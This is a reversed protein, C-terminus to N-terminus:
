QTDALLTDGVHALVCTKHKHLCQQNLCSCGTRTGDHVNWVPRLQGGEWQRNLDGTPQAVANRASWPVLTWRQRTPSHCRESASRPLRCCQHRSCLIAAVPVLPAPPASIGHLSPLHEPVMTTCTAPHVLPEPVPLRPCWLYRTRRHHLLRAWPAQQSIDRDLPRCSTHFWPLLKQDSSRSVRLRCFCGEASALWCFRCGGFQGCPLAPLAGATDHPSRLPGRRAGRRQQRQQTRVTGATKTSARSGSVTQLSVILLHSPSPSPSPPLPSPPLPRPTWFCGARLTSGSWWVPWGCGAHPNWGTLSRVAQLQLWLVLRRHVCGRTRCRPPQSSPTNLAQQEYVWNKLERLGLIIELEPCWSKSKNKSRNLSPRTTAMHWPLVWHKDTLGHCCGFRSHWLLRGEESSIFVCRCQPGSFRVVWWFVSCLEFTPADRCNLDARVVMSWDSSLVCSFMCAGCPALRVPWRALLSGAQLILNQESWGFLGRRGVSRSEAGGGVCCLIPELSTCELTRPPGGGLARTLKTVIRTVEAKPTGWKGSRRQGAAELHNRVTVEKNMEVFKYHFNESTAGEVRKFNAVHECHVQKKLITEDRQTRRRGCSFSGCWLTKRWDGGMRFKSQAWHDLLRSRAEGVQSRKKKEHGENPTRQM